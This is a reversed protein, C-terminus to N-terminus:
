PQQLIWKNVSPIVDLVNSSLNEVLSILQEGKDFDSKEMSAKVSALIKIQTPHNVLSRHINHLRDLTDRDTTAAIMKKLAAALGKCYTSVDRSAAVLAEGNGSKAADGLRKLADAIKRSDQVVPSEETLLKQGKQPVPLKLTQEQIRDAGANIKDYGSAAKGRPSSPAPARKRIDTDGLQSMLRRVLEQAESTVDGELRLLASLEGLMAMLRASADLLSKEDNAESSALQLIQDILQSVAANARFHNLRESPVNLSALIEDLTAVAQTGASKGKEVDGASLVAKSSSAIPMFQDRVIPTLARLKGTVVDRVVPSRLQPAAGELRKSYTPIGNSAAHRLVPNPQPLAAQTRAVDDRMALAAAAVQEEPSSPPPMARELANRVRALVRELESVAPSKEPLRPKKEINRRRLDALEDPGLGSEALVPKLANRIAGIDPKPRALEKAATQACKRLVEATELGARPALVDHLVDLGDRLHQKPPQEDGGAARIREWDRLTDEFEDAATAISECVWHRLKPWPFPADGPPPPLLNPEKFKLTKYSATPDEPIGQRLVRRLVDDLEAIGDVAPKAPVAKRDKLHATVAPVVTDKLQKRLAALDKKVSDGASKGLLPAMKDLHDLHDGLSKLREAAPAGSVTNPDELIARLKELDDHARSAANVTEEQPMWPKVNRWPFDEEPFERSQPGDTKRLRPWAMPPDAPPFPLQNPPVIKYRKGDGPGPEAPKPTGPKWGRPSTGGDGGEKPQRQYGGSTPGRGPSVPAPAGRPSNSGPISTGSGELPGGSPKLKADMWSPRHDRPTRADDPEVHRLRPWRFPEPEEPDWPTPRVFNYRKPEPGAETPKGQGPKWGRRKEENVDDVAKKIKPILDRIPDSGKSPQGSLVATKDAIKDIAALLSKKAAPDEPSQLVQNVAKLMDNSKEILAHALQEMQRRTEPNEEQKAATALQDALGKLKAAESKVRELFADHDGDPKLEEADQKLQAVGSAANAAQALIKKIEAGYVIHLLLSTKQAMQSVAHGLVDWAASKDGGGPASLDKVAGNLLDSGIKVDKASDLIEEQIIPFDSYEDNALATAM